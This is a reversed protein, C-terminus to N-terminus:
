RCTDLFIFEGETLTLKMVMEATEAVSSSLSGGRSKVFFRSGILGEVEGVDKSNGAMRELFQSVDDAFYQLGDVCPKSIDAYMAPVNVSLAMMAAAKSADAKVLQVNPLMPPHPVDFLDDQNDKLSGISAFATALNSGVTASAFVARQFQINLQVSDSSFDAHFTPSHEERAIRASRKAPTPGTMICVDHIDAVVIGSRQSYKLPSSCRLSLRLMPISVTLQLTDQDGDQFAHSTLAAFISPLLYCVLSPKRAGEPVLPQPETFPSELDESINKRWLLPEDDVTDDSYISHRDGSVTEVPLVGDFFSLLGDPRVLQDLDIRVHLPSFDIKLDDAICSYVKGNEALRLTRGGRMQFRPEFPMADAKPPRTRWLSLKSGANQFRPQTWDLTDFTPLTAHPSVNNPQDHQSPYQSLLYHDTILLPFAKLELSEEVPTFSFLSIDVMTLDVCLNWTITEGQPTSSIEASLHPAELHIRSYGHNWRPPVLPKEFFDAASTDHSGTPDLLLVLGRATLTVKLPPLGPKNAPQRKPIPNHPTMALARSLRLLGNLHCPKITCAIVNLNMTVYLKELRPDQRPDSDNASTPSPTTLVITVPSTGLSLITQEQGHAAVELPLTEPLLSPLPPDERIPHEVIPSPISLASQYMSSVVSNTPSDSRPPLTTLSQLMAAQTEDVSSARSGSFPTGTKNRHVEDLSHITLPSLSRQRVDLPTVSLSLGSFSLTRHEGQVVDPPLSINAKMATQYIIEQLSLSVCINDAHVLSIKIDRADFEFRALLNEILSAFISIGTLDPDSKASGDELSTSIGLTGPIIPLQSDVPPAAHFSPWLTEEEESSLEQHIFSDAVSAVSEALDVNPKSTRVKSSTVEFVFHASTLSIGVTSALPNPWPIYARVAAISGEKM